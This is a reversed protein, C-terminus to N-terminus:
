PNPGLVKYGLTSRIQREVEKDRKVREERARNTQAPSAAVPAISEIPASMMGLPQSVVKKTLPINDKPTNKISIERLLIFKQLKGTSIGGYRTMLEEEVDTGAEPTAGCSPSAGSVYAEGEKVQEAPLWKLHLEGAVRVGAEPPPLTFTVRVGVGPIPVIDPPSLQASANNAFFQTPDFEVSTAGNRWPLMFTYTNGYLDLYHNDRSCFGEGGWNRVFMAWFDETATTKEKVRIAMAYVPHLETYCGHVCDLGVLGTVIAYSGDVKAAAAALPNSTVPAKWWPTVAKRFEEWWPTSFHDVTESADFEIHLAGGFNAFNSCTAGAYNRTLFAFDYDDDFASNGEWGLWGEYTGSFWNQHGNKVGDHGLSCIQAKPVRPIDPGTIQSSCPTAAFICKPDSLPLPKSWTPNLPLLNSDLTKNWNFDYDRAQTQTSGVSSDTITLEVFAHPAYQKTTDDYCQQPNGKDRKKDNYDNDDYQDDEYGLRLFQSASSIPLSAVTVTQNNVNALRTLGATAGPIWILGHYLRDANAGLPDVYLKWTRGHGGTRVCGGARISVQDGPKFSIERYRSLRHKVDPETIIWKVVGPAVATSIPHQARVSNVVVFLLVLAPVFIFRSHLQLARANDSM